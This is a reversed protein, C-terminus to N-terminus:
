YYRANYIVREPVAKGISTNLRYQLLLEHSGSNSNKLPSLNIDYAYFIRFGDSLRFGAILNIADKSTKSWGRFGVGADFKRFLESVLTIDLQNETLDSRFFASPILRIQERIEFETAFTFFYNTVLRIKGNNITYKLTSQALNKIGFGLKVFNRQYMVGVDLMPFRGEFPVSPLFVDKHDTATPSYVGDPTRIQSGNWSMSGLGARLGAALRSNKGTRLFFSYAISGQVTQQLGLRDNEIVLGAGSSIANLPLDVNIFQTQPAGSLGAWQQRVLASANLFGDSGAYAPNVAPLCYRYLTFQAPQQAQTSVSFVICCFALFAARM